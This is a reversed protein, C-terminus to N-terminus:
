TGYQSYGLQECAIQTQSTDWNDACVRGWTSNVCVELIGQSPFSGSSYLQLSGDPQCPAVYMVDYLPSFGKFFVNYTHLTFSIGRCSIGVDRSSSCYSPALVPQSCNVLYSETGSCHFNYYIPGVGDTVSIREAGTCPIVGLLFM